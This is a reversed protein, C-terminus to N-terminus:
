APSPRLTDPRRAAILREIRRGHRIGNWAMTVGLSSYIVGPLWPPVGPLWSLLVSVLCTGINIRIGALDLRTYELEVDTLRLRERQRLANWYLLGFLFWVGALGGGYIRYVLFLEDLSNMGGSGGLWANFLFKLPYVSFLVMLLIAYNVFRTFMDELGYRRFFRYHVNWFIILLAFSAAFAPFGRIVKMLGPFDTPIQQAVVLLTLAFGFAADALNELRSVEGGRWRFHTEHQRGPLRERWSPSRPRSM